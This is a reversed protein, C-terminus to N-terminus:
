KCSGTIKITYIVDNQSLTVEARKFVFACPLRYVQFFLIALENTWVGPKLKTKSSGETIDPKMETWQKETLVLHFTELQKYGMNLDDDNNNLASYSEDSDSKETNITSEELSSISDQGIKHRIIVGMERRATSLISNRDNRVNTYCAAFNWKGGLAISMEKWVKASWAPLPETEFYKMFQKVVRISDEPQVTIKRPM